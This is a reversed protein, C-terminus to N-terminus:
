VSESCDMVLYASASQSHPVDEVHVDTGKLLLKGKTGLILLKNGM